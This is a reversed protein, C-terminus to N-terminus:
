TSISCHNPGIHDHRRKRKLFALAGLLGLLMPFGAPLPVPSPASAAVATATLGGSASPNVFFSLNSPLGSYTFLTSGFNTNGTVNLFNFTDGLLPTYGNLFSFNITGGLFNADGSIYLVDFMGQAIGGIEVDWFGGTMTFDGFINGTGPSSGINLNGAFTVGGNLATISGNSLNLFGNQGVNWSQATVHAGNVVYMEGRAGNGISISNQVDLAIPGNVILKGPDTSGIDLALATSQDLVGDLNQNVDGTGHIFGVSGQGPYVPGGSGLSFNELQQGGITVGQLQSLAQISDGPSPGNGTVDYLVQFHLHDCSRGTYLGTQPDTGCLQPSYRNHGGVLTGLSQGATVDMGVYLNSNLTSFERYETFYGNGHDIVVCVPESSCKGTGSVSVITGFGAALVDAADATGNFNQDQNVDFDISYYAQNSSHLTDPIGDYAAGGAVVNTFVYDTGALPFGLNPPTPASQGTSIAVSNMDVTFYIDYGNFPDTPDASSIYGSGTAGSFNLDQASSPLQSSTLLSAGGASSAGKSFALYSYDIGVSGPHLAAGITENPGFFGNNSIVFQDYTANGSTVDNGSEIVIQNGSSWTHGGITYSYGVSGTTPVSFALAPGSPNSSPTPVATATDYTVTGIVQEGGVLGGPASTGPNYGYASSVTGLFDITVTAASVYSVMIATSAVSGLPVLLKKLYM